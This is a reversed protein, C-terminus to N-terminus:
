VLKSLRLTLKRSSINKSSIVKKVIFWLRRRKKTVKIENDSASSAEYKDTIDENPEYKDKIKCSTGSESNELLEHEYDKM